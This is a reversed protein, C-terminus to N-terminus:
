AFCVRSALRECRIGGTSRTAGSRIAGWVGRTRTRTTWCSTRRTGARLPSSGPARRRSRFRRPPSTKEVHTKRRSRRSSSAASADRRLRRVRGSRAKRNESKPETPPSRPAARLRRSRPRARARRYAREPRTRRLRRLRLRARREARASPASPERLRLLRARGAGSPTLWSGSSCRGAPGSAAPSSRTSAACPAPTRTARRRLPTPRPGEEERRAFRLRGRHARACCGSGAPLAWAAASRPPLRLPPRHRARKRPPPSRPRRRLPPRSAPTRTLPPHM